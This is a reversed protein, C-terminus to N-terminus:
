ASTYMHMNTKHLHDTPTVVGGFRAVKFAAGVWWAIHKSAFCQASASPKIHCVESIDAAGLPGITDPGEVVREGAGM